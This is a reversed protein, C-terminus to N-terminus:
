WNEIPTVVEMRYIRITFEDGENDILVIDNNTVYSDNLGQETIKVRCDEGNEDYWYFFIVENEPDGEIDAFSANVSQSQNLAIILDADELQRYLSDVKKNNM